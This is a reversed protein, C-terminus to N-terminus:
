KSKVVDKSCLVYTSREYSTWNTKHVTLRCETDRIYHRYYSNLYLGTSVTPAPPSCGGWIKALNYKKHFSFFYRITFFSFNCFSNVGWLKNINRANSSVEVGSIADQWYNLALSKKMKLRESVIVSCLEGGMSNLASVSFNNWFLKLNGKFRSEM